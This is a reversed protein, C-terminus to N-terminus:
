EFKIKFVGCMSYIYIYIYIYIYELGIFLRYDINYNQYRLIYNKM